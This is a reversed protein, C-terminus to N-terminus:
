VNRSWQADDALRRLSQTVEPKQTGMLTDAEANLCDMVGELTPMLDTAHPSMVILQARRDDPNPQREVLGQSEMRDLVGTVSASDLTMRRGIEVGSIPGATALTKLVAYQVPTVNHPALVERARRTVQQAAKSLLFSICEELREM